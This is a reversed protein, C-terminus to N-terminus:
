LPSRPMGAGGSSRRWELGDDSVALGYKQSILVPDTITNAATYLMVYGDNTLAVRPQMVSRLDWVNGERPDGPRMGPYSAGFPDDTTAANDYKTWPVGDPSTARGIMAGDRTRGAFYMEYGTETKIVSPALVAYEDWAGAPGPFLVPQLDATWPGTPSPATARGIKSQGAPWGPSDWTYFYLVWTGDDDVLVSSALAPGGHVGPGASVFTFLDVSAFRPPFTTTTTTSAGTTTTTSPVTTTEIPRTTTTTTLSGEGTSAGGGAALLVMGAAVMATSRRVIGGQLLDM